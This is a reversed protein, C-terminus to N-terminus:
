KKTFINGTLGKNIPDLFSSFRPVIPAASTLFMPSFLMCFGFLSGIVLFGTMKYMFVLAFIFFGVLLVPKLIDLIISAWTDNQKRANRKSGFLTAPGTLFMPSFLICAGALIGIVKFGTLKYMVFLAGLFFAILAVVKAGDFIISAWSEEKNSYNNKKM